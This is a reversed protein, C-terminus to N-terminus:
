VLYTCYIISHHRYMCTLVYRIRLNSLICFNLYKSWKKWPVLRCTCTHLFTNMYSCTQLLLKNIVSVQKHLEPVHNPSGRLYTELMLAFRVNVEPSEMESRHLHLLSHNVDRSHPRYFAVVNHLHVYVCHMHVYMYVPIILVLTSFHLYFLLAPWTCTCAYTCMMDHVGCMYLLVLEYYMYTCFFHSSKSRWTCIISCLHLQVFCHFYLTVLSNYCLLACAHLVIHYSELLPTCHMFLLVGPWWFWVGFLPTMQVHM